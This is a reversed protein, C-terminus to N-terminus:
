ALPPRLYAAGFLQSSPAPSKAHGYLFFDVAIDGALRFGLAVVHARQVVENQPHQRAAPEPEQIPPVVFPLDNGVRINAVAKVRHFIGVPFRPLKVLDTEARILGSYGDVDEANLVLLIQGPGIAPSEALCAHGPVADFEFCQLVDVGIHKFRRNSVPNRRGVFSLALPRRATL